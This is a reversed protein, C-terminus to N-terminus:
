SLSEKIRNVKEEASNKSGKIKDKVHELEEQGKSFLHSVTDAWDGATQKIKKRINKGNDPAVLLGIVVGAAAAGLIGILVKNKTTM